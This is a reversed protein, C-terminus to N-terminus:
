CDALILSVLGAIYLLAVEYGPPGFVPGDPTLGITAISSFGYKLHVTFITVLMITSLPIATITVFAGLLIALGGLLQVFPVIWSTLHPLPAGVQILLKEFNAPGHSIKGLWSGYIWLRHRPANISAGVSSISNECAQVRSGTEVGTRSNSDRTDLLKTM